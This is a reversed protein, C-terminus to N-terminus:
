WKSSRDALTERWKEATSAQKRLFDRSQEIEKAESGKPTDRLGKKTRHKRLRAGYRCIWQHSTKASPRPLRSGKRPSSVGVRRGKRKRKRRGACRLLPWLFFCGRWLRFLRSELIRRKNRKPKRRQSAKRVKAAVVKTRRQQSAEWETAQTRM